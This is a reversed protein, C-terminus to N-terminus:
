FDKILRLKFNHLLLKCGLFQEGADAVEIRNQNARGRLDGPFNDFGALLEADDCAAAHSQVVDVGHCRRGLPDGHQVGGARRGHRDGLQGESVHEGYRAEQVDAGHFHTRALPGLFFVARADLEELLGEADHAQAVDPLFDCAAGEAEAHMHEGIVRREGGHVEDDLDRRLFMEEPLRIEDRQVQREVLLRSRNDSLLFELHHLLPHDQDVAGASAHHILFREERRQIAALDAPGSQVHEFVFRGRGILGRQDVM